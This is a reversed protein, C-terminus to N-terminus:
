AKTIRCALAKGFGLPQCRACLAGRDGPRRLVGPPWFGLCPPLHGLRLAPEGPQFLSIGTIATQSGNIRTDAAWSVAMKGYVPPRDTVVVDTEWCTLCESCRPHDSCTPCSTSITGRM